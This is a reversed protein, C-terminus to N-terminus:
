INKTMNIQDQNRNIREKALSIRFIKTATKNFVNTLGQYKNLILKEQELQYERDKKNSKKGNELWLSFVNKLKKKLTISLLLTTVKTAKNIAVTDIAIVTM